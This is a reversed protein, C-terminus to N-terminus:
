KPAGLHAARELLESIVSVASVVAVPLAVAFIIRADLLM